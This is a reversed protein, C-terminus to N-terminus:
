LFTFLSNGKLDYATAAIVKTFLIKVLPTTLPSLVVARITSIFNDSQAESIFNLHHSEGRRLMNILLRIAAVQELPRGDRRRINFLKSHHCHAVCMSSVLLYVEPRKKRM